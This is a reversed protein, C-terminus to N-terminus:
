KKYYIIIWKKNKFDRSLYFNYNKIKFSKTDMKFLLFPFFCSWVLLLSSLIFEMTSSYIEAAYLLFVLFISFISLMILLRLVWKKDDIVDNKTLIWTNRSNGYNYSHFVQAKVTNLIWDHFVYNQNNLLNNTLKMNIIKSYINILLSNQTLERDRYCYNKFNEM